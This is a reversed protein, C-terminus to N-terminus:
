FRRYRGSRRVRYRGDRLLWLLLLGCRFRWHLMFGRSGLPLRRSRSGLRRDPLLGNVLRRNGLGRGLLLRNLLRRHLFGGSWLPRDPLGRRDTLCRGDLLCWRDTLCRGDLLGWRDTFRRRHM